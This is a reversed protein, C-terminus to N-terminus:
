ADERAPSKLFCKFICLPSFDFLHLWAIRSHLELLCKLVWQPFYFFAVLAVICGRLCAIQPSMQFYMTSFLEVFAVLTVKRGRPCAIQPSMEFRVTSLLGVFAVLTIICGRICAIQPLMQFCVTSFLWVFGIQVVALNFTNNKNKFQEIFGAPYQRKLPSAPALSWIWTWWCINKLVTYHSIIKEVICVWRTTNNDTHLKLLQILCCLWFKHYITEVDPHSKM